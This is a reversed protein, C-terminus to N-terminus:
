VVMRDGNYIPRTGRHCNAVRMIAKEDTQLALLQGLHKDAEPLWDDEAPHACLAAIIEGSLDLIEINAMVNRRIRFPTGLSGVLDFRHDNEYSRRQEETLFRFLLEKARENAEARQRDLERRRERWRERREQQAQTDEETMPEPPLRHQFLPLGHDTPRVTYTVTASNTALYNLAGTQIGGASFWVNPSTTSTTFTVNNGILTYPPDEGNGYTRIVPPPM